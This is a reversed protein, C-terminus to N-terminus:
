MYMIVYLETCSSDLSSESQLVYRTDSRLKHIFTQWTFDNREREAGKGQGCNSFLLKVVLIDTWEM